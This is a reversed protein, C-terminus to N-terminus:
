RTLEAVRDNAVKAEDLYGQRVKEAAHDTIEQGCTQCTKVEGTGVRSAASEAAGIKALLGVIEAQRHISREAAAELARAM